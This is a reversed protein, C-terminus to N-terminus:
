VNVGLAATLARRMAQIQFHRGSPAYYSRAYDDWGREYADLVVEAMADTVPGEARRRVADLHSLLAAASQQFRAVFCTCFDSDDGSGQNFTCHSAHTVYIALGRRVEDQLREETM